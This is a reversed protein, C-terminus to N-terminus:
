LWIIFFYCGDKVCINKVDKSFYQYYKICLYNINYMYQYGLDIIVIVGFRQIIRYIIM